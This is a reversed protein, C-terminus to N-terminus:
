FHWWIVLPCQDYMCLACTGNSLLLLLFCVDWYTIAWGGSSFSFIPFSFTLYLCFPVSDALSSRLQLPHFDSSLFTGESHQSFIYYSLDTDSSCRGSSYICIDESLCISLAKEGASRSLAAFLSWFHLFYWCLLDRGASFAYKKIFRWSAKM